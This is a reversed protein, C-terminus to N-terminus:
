RAPESSGITRMLTIRPPGPGRCCRLGGLRVVELRRLAVAVAVVAHRDEGRRRDGLRDLEDGVGELDGLAVPRRDDDEGVPDHALRHLRDDGHIPIGGVLRSAPLEGPRVTPRSADHTRQMEQGLVELTVVEPELRLEGRDGLALDAPRALMELVGLDDDDRVARRRPDRARRDLSGALVTQRTPM